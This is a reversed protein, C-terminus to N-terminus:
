GGLRSAPPRKGLASHPRLYNYRHTWVPM